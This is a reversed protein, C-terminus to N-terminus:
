EAPVTAPFVHRTKDWATPRRARIGVYQLVARRAALMGVVNGVIMRPVSRAAERWGYAQNVMAARMAVRWAMMALNIWLLVTMATGAAAFVPRDVTFRWAMAILELGFAAYATALILASLVARRDRMRMWSEAIGGRWGLREWGSLAIGTLWRTKQRVATTLTAPFYARVAVLSRGGAAPLRVFIGRMGFEGLKLGIEYDETLSDADFPDGGGADAIRGVAARSLACGVGASPVGAGIAERVVLQKGHAEAFEDCYHGSIWRSGRDVLPLVPLQVLDFREILTDFLKLEGSHVVDEADHLVIAKYAAGARVEDALLAHWIQNLCDAKTTPGLRDGVVLRVRRDHRAVREVMDITTPDNPYTGVYIRYDDHDFTALAHCLMSGIVAAEDWAGILVAIRGPAAPPALTAIDARPFPTGARRISRGIWILDVLLDDLGGILLGVAAFLLLEHAARQLLWYATIAM